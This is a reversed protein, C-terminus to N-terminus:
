EEYHVGTPRGLACSISWDMWVLVRNYIYNLKWIFLSVLALAAFWFARKMLEEEVLPMNSYTKKRHAGVDQALRLGVGTM